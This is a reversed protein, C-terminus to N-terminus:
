LVNMEEITLPKLSQQKMELSISDLIRNIFEDLPMRRTGKCHFLRMEFENDRFIFRLQHYDFNLPVNKGHLSYHYTVIILFDLVSYLERLTTPACLKNTMHDDLYNFYTGEAIGVEFGVRGKCTGAMSPLSIPITERLGNLKSLAQVVSRQIEAPHDNYTVRATGHTATPFNTFKGLLVKPPRIKARRSNRKTHRHM